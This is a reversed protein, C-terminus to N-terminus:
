TIPRRSRAEEPKSAGSPMITLPERESTAAGGHQHRQGAVAPLRDLVIGFHERYAALVADDDPLQQETRAGHDTRILTRGSLSIRGDDTLLSCVPVTTFHSEPSTQHWWCATVFDDISRPRREIRYQPEGDLLVDVDGDATDTLMFDGVPDAQVDRSDYRLPLTSHRGFGVDALWSRDTGAPRVVLALHDFPPGLGSAGFVRAAVLTVDAGLARLLSAFAGNLEYCFGGRRRTVIKSLLDDEALSIPESLHISLNEFPVTLQHARHLERLAAADLLTPRPVGIRRLYAALAQEDM